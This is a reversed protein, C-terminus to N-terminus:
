FRLVAGAQLIFPDLEPEATVRLPGLDGSADVSYFAKRVEAYVGFRQGIPVELGAQVVPGVADGIRLNAALGDDTDWTHHWVLGAGVYPSVPGGRLPHWIGTLSFLSFSDDGLSPLGALSGAPLNSTTAPTTASVQVAIQHHVFWGLEASAVWDEPTTYDAQPDEVGNIFIPGDDALKVRAVGLRAYFDPQVVDQAQVPVALGAALTAALIKTSFKM